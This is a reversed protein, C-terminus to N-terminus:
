ALKNYANVILQAYSLYGEPASNLDTWTAGTSIEGDMWYTVQKDEKTDDVATESKVLKLLNETGYEMVYAVTADRNMKWRSYSNGDKDERTWYGNEEKSLAKYTMVDKKETEGIVVAVNNAKVADYYAKANAEVALYEKITQTGIKYTAAETDYTMTVDGYKVTTYYATATWTTVEDKTASTTLITFGETNTINAIAAEESETSKGTEGKVYTPFCVETLTLATIAGDTTTVAAYGVYGGTHVIGYAEGTKVEPDKKGDDCAAFGVTAGALAAVCAVSAIAKNFIKM